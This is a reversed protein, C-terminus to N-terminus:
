DIKFSEIFIILFASSVKVNNADYKKHFLTQNKKSKVKHHMYKPKILLASM